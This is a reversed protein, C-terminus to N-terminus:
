SAPGGLGAIFAEVDSQRFFTRRGIHVPSLEGSKVLEYVKTTGIGGLCSRLEGINLLRRNSETRETEVTNTQSRM